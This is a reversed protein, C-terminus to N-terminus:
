RLNVYCDPLATKLQNVAAHSLTKPLQLVQLSTLRALRPAAADTLNTDYIWLNELSSLPALAELGADTVRTRHLRLEKLVSLAAVHRLAADGIPTAGLDLRRLLTMNGLHALQEDPLETKSIDLWYIDDLELSALPSLDGVADPSVNLRLEKGLPVAVNGRADCHWQWGGSVGFDRLQLTGLSRGEPFKVYRVGETELM